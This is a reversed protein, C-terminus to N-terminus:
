AETRAWSESGIAVALIFQVYGHLWHTAHDSRTLRFVPLSRVKHCALGFLVVHPTSVEACNLLLRTLAGYTVFYITSGM